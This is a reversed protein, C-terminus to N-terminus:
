PMVVTVPITEDSRGSLYDIVSVDLVGEHYTFRSTILAQVTTPDIYDTEVAAGDVLVVSHPTFGAGKVSLAVTADTTKHAPIETPEVTSLSPSDLKERLLESQVVLFQTGKSWYSRLAHPALDTSELAELAVLDVGRELVPATSSRLRQVTMAGLDESWFQLGQRLAKPSLPLASALSLERVEKSTLEDIALAVERPHRSRDEIADLPIGFAEFLVSAGGVYVIAALAVIAAVRTPARAISRRATALWSGVWLLLVLAISGPALLAAADPSNTWTIAGSRSLIAHAALALVLAIPIRSRLEHPLGPDNAGHRLVIVAWITLLVSLYLIYRGHIKGFEPYSLWSHRLVAILQLGALTSALAFFRREALTTSPWYKATLLLIPLVPLALVVLYFGYYTLWSFLGALTAEDAGRGGIHFGLVEKIPFRRSALLLWPGYSLFLGLAVAIANRLIRHSRVSLRGRINMPRDAEAIVLAAFTSVVVTLGLHRTLYCAGAFFGAVMARAFTREETYAITAWLSFLLLTYFLNESMLLRSYSVHYPLLAAMLVAVTAYMPAVFKRAILWTPVVVAASVLANITLMAAYFNEFWLAPALLLPYLPPYHPDRYTANTLDEAFQRYLLEDGFIVPGNATVVAHLQLALALFFACVPALWWLTQGRSGAPVPNHDVRWDLAANM